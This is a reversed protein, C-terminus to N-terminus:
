QKDDNSKMVNNGSLDRMDPDNHGSFFEDLPILISGYRGSEPVHNFYPKVIEGGNKSSIQGSIELPAYIDYQFLRIIEQFHYKFQYLSYDKIENVSCKMLSCFKFIEEIMTLEESKNNEDILMKELVPDYSEIYKTSLGNQLLIIERIVDFDQENFEVNGINFKIVISNIDEVDEIYSCYFKVKKKTIIELFEVLMEEIERGKPNINWQIPFLLFKLYSMKEISEEKIYSKPIQFIKYFLNKAKSDKLKIPHFDITRYTQPDGFIDKEREYFDRVLDNM